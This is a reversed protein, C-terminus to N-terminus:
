TSPHSLSFDCVSGGRVASLTSHWGKCLVAQSSARHVRVPSRVRVCVFTACAPVLELTSWTSTRLDCIATALHVTFRLQSSLAALGYVCIFCKQSLPQRTSLISSTVSFSLRLLALIRVLIRPSSGGDRRLHQYARQAIEASSVRKM